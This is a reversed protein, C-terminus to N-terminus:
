LQLADDGDTDDGCGPRGVHEARLRQIWGRAADDVHRPRQRRGFDRLDQSCRSVRDGPLREPERVPSAPRPRLDEWTKLITAVGRRMRSSTTDGAALQEEEIGAVPEHGDVHRATAARELVACRMGQELGRNGVHGGVIEVVHRRVTLPEDHDHRRVIGAHILWDGDDQVPAGLVCLLRGYQGLARGLQLDRRGNTTPSSGIVLLDFTEIM